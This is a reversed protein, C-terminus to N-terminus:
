TSCYTCPPPPLACSKQLRNWLPYNGSPRPGAGERNCLRIAIREVGVQVTDAALEHNIQMARGVAKYSELGEIYYLRVARCPNQSLGKIALDIDAMRCVLKEILPGPEWAISVGGTVTPTVMGSTLQACINSYHM